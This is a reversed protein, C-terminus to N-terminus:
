RVLLWESGSHLLRSLKKVRRRGKRLRMLEIRIGLRWTRRSILKARYLLIVCRVEIPGSADPLVELEVGVKSINGKREVGHDKKKKDGGGLGGLVSLRSKKGITGPGSTSSKTPGSFTSSGEESHGESGHDEEEEEDYAWADKLAHVTFHPVPV